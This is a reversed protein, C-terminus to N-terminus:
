RAVTQSHTRSQESNFDHAIGGTLHGIAEMKQSQTLAERTKDLKVQADRRETIDKTIKAFGILTGTEDRLPDIVVHAWFRTGDKRVRWGEKEFKAERKATELARHPEGAARDEETYFQSFHRGIIEEPAYGKNRQAGLNWNTVNGDTDLMYIAYDTVGQVLLRFQEESQRLTQEAQKRETLDRTIKAYGILDRSPSWIPDIVVAAWFRTGDKRVRWSENDFKGQLRATKLATAPLGLKQDEETYFRSFHQGIIEKATYGKFRQAGPNWSSVIGDSDLMYIAYDTVAEVLLRYRGDDTFFFTGQQEM